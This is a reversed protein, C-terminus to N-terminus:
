RHKRFLIAQNIMLPLLRDGFQDLYRLVTQLRTIQFPFLHIGRHAIVEGDAQELAHRLARTSVFNELGDYPRVKLVSAIQVPTLWLKNPTSLALYGGPKLVRVMENVAMIPDPTHEIVESSFVVDFCNAGFPMQVVSGNVPACTYKAATFEILQPGLDLSTVVAGRRIFRATGRGTGCGADLVVQNQLNINVLFEDILVELRRRIDYPNMIEDFAAGLRDHTLEPNM